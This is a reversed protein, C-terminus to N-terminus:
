NNSNIYGTFIILQLFKRFRAFKTKKRLRLVRGGVELLFLKLESFIAVLVRRSKGSAWSQSRGGVTFYTTDGDLFAPEISWEFDKEPCLTQVYGQPGQGKPPVSSGSVCM